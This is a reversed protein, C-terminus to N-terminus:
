SEEALKLVAEVLGESLRYGSDQLRLVMSKLEGVHGERKAQLLVGLVGLVPIGQRRAVQRGRKEDMLVGCDLEKAMVLTQAEGEDLIKLLHRSLTNDITAGVQTHAMAFFHILEADAYEGKQTAESLVIQPLHVESFLITLLELRDLRALAILPGTDAVILQVHAVKV